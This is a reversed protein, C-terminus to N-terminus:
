GSNILTVLAQPLCFMSKVQKQAISEKKKWTSVKRKIEDIRNEIPELVPSDQLSLAQIVESCSIDDCKTAVLGHTDIEAPFLTQM